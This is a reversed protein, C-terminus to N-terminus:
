APVIVRVRTGQGSESTLEMSAGILEAREYLGLLGYHGSPAFEAPSDPVDFGCGDDVVELIVAETSYTVKLEANKANAHRLVNTLAEQAIRYLALEVTASFRREVGSRHFGVQAKGDLSTERAMMELAAVLGLDELYIPRLARTIRRLNRITNETLIQIETLADAESTGELSMCMLQVRQNLAILAQLTDDHLERALRRREEEQGTTIAGIYGRLGEQAAKVKRALHVMEAHLRRIETIGGIPKEIAEFDGWALEVAKSELEQLPQVIFRTGFWIAILSLLLIPILVLPAGETIRLLPSAVTEWPEEIVLVWDVVPIPSYAVVHEDDGFRIYTAGSQGALGEAVGPHSAPDEGEFFEGMRYILSRDQSLVFAVSNEGPTFADALVREVLAAPSFVGVAILGSPKVPSIAYMVAEGNEPDRALVFSAAHTQEAAALTYMEESLLDDGSSGGGSYAQIEGSSGFVIVGRDFDLLFSGSESLTRALTDEAYGLEAILALSEISAGLHDFQEGLAKSAARVTREDREGVLARMSHQHLALGGFTVVIMLITLPLIVIAFLQPTLGRWSFRRLKDM